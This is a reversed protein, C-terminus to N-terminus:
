SRPRPADAVGPRWPQDRHRMTAPTRALTFIQGASVATRAPGTVRPHSLRLHPLFTSSVPDLQRRGAGTVSQCHVALLLRIVERLRSSGRTPLGTTSQLPHGLQVLLLSESWSRRRPLHTRLGDSDSHASGASLSDLARTRRCLSGEIDRAPGYQNHTGHGPQLPQPHLPVRRGALLELAV